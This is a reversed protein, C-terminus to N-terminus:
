FFFFPFISNSGPIPRAPAQYIVKELFASAYLKLAIIM